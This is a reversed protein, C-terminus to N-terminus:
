SLFYHHRNSRPAPISAFNPFPLLYPFSIRVLRACCLDMRHPPPAVGAHRRSHADRPRERRVGRLRLGLQGAVQRARVRRPLDPPRLHYLQLTRVRVPVAGRVRRRGGLPRDLSPPPDRPRVRLLLRPHRLLAGSLLPARVAAPADPLFTRLPVALRHLVFGDDVRVPRPNPRDAGAHCKLGGPRDRYGRQKRLALVLKAAAFMSVSMTAMWWVFPNGLLYIQKQDKTWFSIGRTLFPWTAPKSDFPHSDTLGQNTNWMVKHLELFKRLFGPQHYHVVEADKPLKDNVNEVVRWLTKPRKPSKMCTVEQQGFAYDPLKISHSFLHCNTGVHVLRFKSHIARVRRASESDSPDSELIELRWYDNSDGAFNEAGYASVENHNENETVPPRHDHSHLHRHTSVHELRIVDGNMVWEPETSNMPQGIKKKILFYSNDDRHPYLTIQQELNFSNSRARQVNGVVNARLIAVM